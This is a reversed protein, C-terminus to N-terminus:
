YTCFNENPLFEGWPLGWYIEIQMRISLVTPISLLAISHAFRVRLVRLFECFLTPFAVHIYLFLM